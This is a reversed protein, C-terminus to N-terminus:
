TTSARDSRNRSLIVTYCKVEGGFKYSPTISAVTYRGAEGGLAEIALDREIDGNWGERHVNLRATSGALLVIACVMGHDRAAAYGFMRAIQIPTLEDALIIDAIGAIASALIGPHM